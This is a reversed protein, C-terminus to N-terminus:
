QPDASPKLRRLSREEARGDRDTSDYVGYIERIQRIEQPTVSAGRRAKRELKQTIAQAKKRDLHLRQEFVQVRREALSVQKKHLDLEIRRREAAEFLLPNMKKLTGIEVHYNFAEYFAAQLSESVDAGMRIMGAVLNSASQRADEKAQVKVAYHNAYAAVTAAAIHEGTTRGICRAISSPTEHRDLMQHVHIRARESLKVIAVQPITPPM